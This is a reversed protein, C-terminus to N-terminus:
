HVDEPLPVTAKKPLYTEDTIQFSRIKFINGAAIKLASLNKEALPDNKDSVGRILEAATLFLPSGSFQRAANYEDRLYDKGGGGAQDLAFTGTNDRLQNVFVDDRSNGELVPRDDATFPVAPMRIDQKGGYDWYSINQAHSQVANSNMQNADADSRSEIVNSVRAQSVAGVLLIGLFCVVVAILCVALEALAQGGQKKRKERSVAM